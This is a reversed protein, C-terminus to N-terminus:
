KQVSPPEDRPNLDSYAARGSYGLNSYVIPVTCRFSSNNLRTGDIKISNFIRFVVIRQLLDNKSQQVIHTILDFNM